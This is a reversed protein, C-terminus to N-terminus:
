DKKSTKRGFSCARVSKISSMVRVARWMSPLLDSNLLTADYEFANAASQLTISEKAPTGIYFAGLILRQETGALELKPYAVRVGSACGANRASVSLLKLATSVLIRDSSDSGGIVPYPLRFITGKISESSGFLKRLTTYAKRFRCFPCLWHLKCFYPWDGVSGVGAGNIRCRIMANTRKPSILNADSWLKIMPQMFARIALLNAALDGAWGELEGSILGSFSQPTTRRLNPYRYLIPVYVARRIARHIAGAYVAKIQM